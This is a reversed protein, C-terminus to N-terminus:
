KDKSNDDKMEKISGFLRSTGAASIGGSGITLNTGGEVSSTGKSSSGSGGCLSWYFYLTFLSFVLSGLFAIYNGIFKGTELFGIFIVSSDTKM